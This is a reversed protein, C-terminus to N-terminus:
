VCKLIFKESVLIDSLIFEDGPEFDVPEFSMTGGLFFHSTVSPLLIVALVLDVLSFLKMGTLM